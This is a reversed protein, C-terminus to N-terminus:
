CIFRVSMTYNIESQCLETQVKLFTEHYTLRNTLTETYFYVELVSSSYTDVSQM